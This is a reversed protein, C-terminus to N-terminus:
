SCVMALVVGLGVAVLAWLSTKVAGFVRGTPLGPVPETADSPEPTVLAKLYIMAATGHSRLAYPFFRDSRLGGRPSCITQSCNM